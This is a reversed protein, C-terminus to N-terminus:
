PKPPPKGNPRALLWGSVIGLTFKLLDFIGIRFSESIQESPRSIAEAVAALIVACMTACLMVAVISRPNIERM